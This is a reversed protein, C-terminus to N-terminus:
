IAGYGCAHWAKSGIDTASTGRNLIFGSTTRNNVAIANASYGDNFSVTTTYYTDAFPKLFNVQYM